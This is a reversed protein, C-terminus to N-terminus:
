RSRLCRSFLTLAANFCRRFPQRGVAAFLTSHADILTALAVKIAADNRAPPEQSRISQELRCLTGDVQHKAQHMCEEHDRVFQELVSFTIGSTRDGHVLERRDPPLVHHMKGGVADIAAMPRIDPIDPAQWPGDEQDSWDGPKTANPNPIRTPKIGMELAKDTEGNCVSRFSAVSYKGHFRV